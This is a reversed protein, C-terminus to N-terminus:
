RGVALALVITAVAMSLALGVLAVLVAAERIGFRPRNV